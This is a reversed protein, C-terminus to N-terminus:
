AQHRARYERPSCGFTRQFVQWMYERSQLGSATAVSVMDQSTEKLLQQCKELRKRNIEGKVTRPFHSRFLRDLKSRSVAVAEAVDEVTLPENFHDWIFRLARAVVPNCAALVHTSQRECIAQPPVRIPPEPPPDGALLCSMIDCATDICSELYRTFSSITPLVNKCVGPANGLGLVAVDAPVDFGGQALMFCTRAAVYDSHSFIGVPMPTSLLWQRIEKVHRKFREDHSEKKLELQLLHCNIGLAVAGERLGDYLLKKDGWPKWGIYAVDGFGRKQFHEAAKKGYDKHDPLVAPIRSDMAQPLVGLRVVRCKKSHLYELLDSQGGGSSKILAGQCHIGAPIRGGCFRLILLQWGRQRAQCQLYYSPIDEVAIVIQQRRRKELKEVLSQKSTQVMDRMLPQVMDRM